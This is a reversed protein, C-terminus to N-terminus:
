KGWIQDCLDSLPIFLPVPPKLDYLDSKKFSDECCSFYHCQQMIDYDTLYCTDATEHPTIPYGPIIHNLLLMTILYYYVSM